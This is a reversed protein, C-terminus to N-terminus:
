KMSSSDDVALLIRYDRENPETRRLWIKDKRYNSAIYSIIRKINLRKGTRYDGRLDTLKKQELITKLEECLRNSENQIIFAENSFDTKEVGEQDLNYDEMQSFEKLIEKFNETSNTKYESRSDKVRKNTIDRGFTDDADEQRERLAEAEARKKLLTEPIEVKNHSKSHDEPDIPPKVADKNDEKADQKLDENKESNEAEDNKDQDELNEKEKEPKNIGKLKSYLDNKSKTQKQVSFDKHQDNFNNDPNDELEKEEQVNIDQLFDNIDQVNIQQHQDFISSVIEELRKEKAENDLENNNQQNAGFAENEDQNAANNQDQNQQTTENQNSTEQNLNEIKYSEQKYDKNEDAEEEIKNNDPNEVSLKEENMSNDTAEQQENLEQDLEEDFDNNPNPDEGELSFDEIEDSEDQKDNKSPLDDKFEERMEEGETDDDQEEDNQSQQEEDSLVAGEKDLNRKEKDDPKQQKEKFQENKKQLENAQLELNNAENLKKEDEEPDKNEEEEKEDQFLKLDPDEKDVDDFDDQPEQPNKEEKEKDENDEEKKKRDTAGEFDNEMEMEEEDAELDEENEDGEEDKQEGKTGLVQEEFELEGTVNNEGKGEGIGTGIETEFEDGKMPKEAEEKDITCFGKYILNTFTICCFYVFKNLVYIWDVAHTIKSSLDYKLLKITENEPASTQVRQSSIVRKTSIFFNLLTKLLEHELGLITEDANEEHSKEMKALSRKFNKRLESYNKTFEDNSQTQEVKINACLNSFLQLLKDTLSNMKTNTQPGENGEIMMKNCHDRVMEFGRVYEKNNVLQKLSEFLNKDASSISKETESLLLNSDILFLIENRYKESLAEDQNLVDDIKQSFRLISQTIKTHEALREFLSFLYAILKERFVPELEKSYETNEFYQKMGDIIRSTRVNMKFIKEELKSRSENKSIFSVPNQATIFPAEQFINGYTMEKGMNIRSKLNFRSLDKVFDSLARMKYARNNEDRLEHMRQVYNKTFQSLAGKLSLNNKFKPVIKSPKAGFLTCLKKASILRFYSIGEVKTVTFYDSEEAFLEQFAKKTMNKRAVDDKGKFLIADVNQALDGVSGFLMKDRHTLVISKGFDASFLERQAKLCRNVSKYLKEVNMRLRVIDEFHWNMIKTANKMPEEAQKALTKMHEKLQENFGCFYHLLNAAIKRARPSSILKLLFTALVVRTPFNILVASKLYNEFIVISEKASSKVLSSALENYAVFDENIMEHKKIAVFHKWNVREFRRLESLQTMLAKHINVQHESKPLFKNFDELNKILLEVGTALQSMSSNMKLGSVIKCAKLLSVLSPLEKFAPDHYFRKLAAILTNLTKCVNEAYYTNDTKEYFNIYAQVEIKERMFDQTVNSVQDTTATDKPLTVTAPSLDATNNNALVNNQLYSIMSLNTFDGFKKENSVKYVSFLYETWKVSIDVKVKKKSMLSLAIIIWLKNCKKHYKQSLKWVSKMQQENEKHYPNVDSVSNRLNNNGLIHFNEEFEKALKEKNYEVTSKEYEYHAAKDIREQLQIMKGAATFAKKSDEKETVNLQVIMTKLEKVFDNIRAHCIKEILEDDRRYNHEYLVTKLYFDTEKSNHEVFKGVFDLLVNPSEQFQWDLINQLAEFLSLSCNDNFLFEYNKMSEFFFNITDKYVIDLSEKNVRTPNDMISMLNKLLMELKGEFLKDVPRQSSLVRQRCNEYIEYSLLTPQDNEISKEPLTFFVKRSPISKIFKEFNLWFHQLRDGLHQKMLLSDFDEFNTQLNTLECSLLDIELRISYKLFVLFEDFTLERRINSQRLERSKMIRDLSASLVSKVQQVPFNKPQKMPTNVKVLQSEKSILKALEYETLTFSMKPCNELNSLAQRFSQTSKKSWFSDFLTTFKQNNAQIGKFYEESIIDKLVKVRDQLVLVRQFNDSFGSVLKDLNTGTLKLECPAFANFAALSQESQAYLTFNEEESVDFVTLISNEIIESKELFKEKILDSFQDTIEKIKRFNVADSESSKQFISFEKTTTTIKPLIEATKQLIKRFNNILESNTKSVFQFKGNFADDFLFRHVAKNDNPDVVIWSNPPQGGATRVLLAMVIKEEDSFKVAGTEVEEFHEEIEMANTPNELHPLIEGYNNFQLVEFFDAIYQYDSNKLFAQILYDEEKLIVTSLKSRLAKETYLNLKLLNEIVLDAFAKVTPFVFTFMLPNNEAKINKLVKERSVSVLLKLTNGILNSKELRISSDSPVLSFDSFSVLIPNQTLSLEFRFLTDMNQENVYSINTIDALKEKTLFERSMISSIRKVFLKVLNADMNLMSEEIAPIKSSFKIDMYKDVKIVFCRNKLANSISISKKSFDFCLLIRFDPHKHIKRIDNNEDFCENLFIVNDELIGNLKELIAPNAEECGDIVIWHGKVISKVLESDNWVFISKEKIVLERVEMIRKRLMEEGTPFHEMIKDFNQLVHNKSGVEFMFLDKPLTPFSKAITKFLRKVIIEWNFQEYSGILDSIDASKFMKIKRIRKSMSLAIKEVLRMTHNINESSSEIIIPFAMELGVGLSFLLLANERESLNVFKNPCKVFSASVPSKKSDFCVLSANEEEVKEAFSLLSFNRALFQHKIIQDAAEIKDFQKSIFLDFVLHSLLSKQEGHQYFHDLFDIVKRFFRINMLTQDSKLEAAVSFLQDFLDNFDQMKPKRRSIIEKVIQRLTDVGLDKLYVRFFRNLFSLPLGKRGRGHSVPNQTGFFRFGNTKRVVQGIDPLFIEGRHDLISNLGELVTQNALNLEDFIVWAGEKLARLLLGDNWTFFGINKPDPVDAGLLDIMDTHESLNIRYVPQNLIKAIQELLSTKGVGPPGELLIPKESQLGLFIKFINQKVHAKDFIYDSINLSVVIDGIVNHNRQIQVQGVIFENQNIQIDLEVDQEHDEVFNHTKYFTETNTRFSKLIVEETILGIIAEFVLDTSIKVAKAGMQKYNKAFVTCWTFLDRLNLPKLIRHNQYNILHFLDFLFLNIKQKEENSLVISNKIELNSESVSGLFNMINDKQDPSSFNEADLPSTVWIETFRNRLAPSLERKGHDGSPNMTAIMFFNQNATLEVFEDEGEQLALKREFELLSNLRELVNDNALAIEDILYIGGNKVAEVLNGEVWEFESSIHKILKKVTEIHPFNLPLNQSLKTLEEKTSNTSIQYQDMKNSALIDNLKDVIKMKNRFPRWAGLFDSVETNKHCNLSHFNVEFIEAMLQSLTTKGCGTEGILLVSEKNMFAKYVLVFLRKFQDSWEIGHKMAIDIIKPNQNVLNNFSVSYIDSPKLVKMKFEEVIIQQVEKKQEHDRIREALLLFGEVGLDESSIVSGKRNSWKLLDRVTILGEKGELVHEFSRLNQLRHMVSLMLKARSEPLQAKQTLIQLLDVEGLTEFNMVIFRNRFAKSLLGRGSYSSPNQTAFIRFGAKPKVVKDIEPVYLEQNDDLVRNLAELIESRALNLEDLLLWNGERMCRLLTGEQFRIVGNEDPVYKGIYEELDTDRHNNLRILKKGLSGAIHKILSTKGASTPGELLIPLSPDFLIIKLLDFIITTVNPTIIYSSEFPATQTPASSGGQLISKIRESHSLVVNNAEQQKPFPHDFIIVFNPDNTLDRIKVMFDGTCYSEQISKTKFMVNFLDDFIAKSAGSLDLQLAVRLGIYFAKVVTVSINKNLLCAKIINTGRRLQRLSLVLKKQNKDLVESNEARLRLEIYFEATQRLMHPSVQSFDCFLGTLIEFVENVDKVPAIQLTTFGEQIRKPLPKKGVEFAPNMCAFLRFNPHKNVVQLENADMLYISQNFLLQYLKLLVDDNALNLEDLLLWQDKEIAQLIVGKLFEFGVGNQQTDSETKRLYAEAKQLIRSITKKGEEFALHENNENSSDNIKSSKGSVLKRTAQVICKALLKFKKQFFLSKINQLFQKNKEFDFFDTLFEQIEEIDKKFSLEQNVPKFGGFLDVTDTAHSINFVHLKKNFVKSLAQISTTKGCGTEGILLVNESFKICGLIQEILHKSKPTFIFDGGSPLQGACRVSFRRTFIYGERLTLVGAYSLAMSEAEGQTVDLIKIIEGFSPNEVFEEPQAEFFIDSITVLISGKIQSSVFMTNTSPNIQILSLIDFCRRVFKDLKYYNFTKVHQFIIGIMRSVVQKLVLPSNITDMISNLFTHIDIKQLKLTNRADLVGEERTVIIAKFMPHFYVQKNKIRLTKNHLISLISSRLQDQAMEFNEFICLHGNEVATVLPGNKWQFAKESEGGGITYNGILTALEITKDIVIYTIKEGRIQTSKVFSNVLQSKGSFEPGEIAVANETVFLNKLLDLAQSDEKAAVFKGSNKLLISTLEHRTKEFAYILEPLLSQPITNSPIQNTAMVKEFAVQIVQNASFVQPHFQKLFMLEWFNEPKSAFTLLGTLFEEDQSFGSVVKFLFRNFLDFSAACRLMQRLLQPFNAHRQVAVLAEQREQVILEHALDSIQEIITSDANTHGAIIM